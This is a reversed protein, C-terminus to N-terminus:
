KRFDELFSNFENFIDITQKDVQENIIEKKLWEPEKKKNKLVTEIYNIPKNGYKKYTEIIENETYTNLLEEIRTCEFSSLQNPFIYKQIENFMEM